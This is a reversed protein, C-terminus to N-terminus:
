SRSVLPGTATSVATPIAHAADEYSTAAGVVEDDAAGADEVRGFADVLDDVDADVAARDRRDAGVEVDVAVADISPM